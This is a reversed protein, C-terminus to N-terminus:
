EVITWKCNPDSTFEPLKVAYFGYSYASGRVPKLAVSESTYKYSKTGDSLTFVYVAAETRASFSLDGGCFVCGDDSLKGYIPDWSASSSSQWDGNSNLIIHKLLNMKSCHITWAGTKIGPVTIQVGVYDAMNLTASVTNTQADYKYDTRTILIRSLPAEATNNPAFYTCTSESSTSFTGALDNTGEWMAKIYGNSAKLGAIVADDVKSAVWSGSQRTLTLEPKTAISNDFWINVIDGDEWGAKLAKTDVGAGPSEVTIDFKIESQGSIQAEKQCSAMSLAAAVAALTIIIKKM